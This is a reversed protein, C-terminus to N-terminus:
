KGFKNWYCNAFNTQGKHDQKWRRGLKIVSNKLEEAAGSARFEDRTFGQRAIVLWIGRAQKQLESADVGEPPVVAAAVGNQTLFQASAIADDFMLREVILYNKGAERPDAGFVESPSVIAAPAPAPQDPDSRRSTGAGNLPDKPERPDRSGADPVSPPAGDKPLLASRERNAGANYAAMAIVAVIAVLVGAGGLLVPWQLLIGKAGGMSRSPEDPEDTQRDAPGHTPGLRLSSESPESRRPLVAPSGSPAGPGALRAEEAKRDTERMVEFLPPNKRSRAM